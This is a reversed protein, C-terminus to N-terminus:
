AGMINLGCVRIINTTVGQSQPAALFAVTEAVDIPLGGQSLAAIRRGAFRTFIPIASTMQTEIFGPAVANITINKEQLPSSMSDVLGIVSAKSMAYNTQGLNGAIGSISSVCIIRSSQNILERKLIEENIRVIAELNVSMVQQWHSKPMSSLMKDKTIGANHVLIDISGVLRELENSILEPSNTDTINAVMAQGGINAMEQELLTKASEIDLGIVKAGDRALLQAISLGIGRSAGTVLAVKGSLPKIWPELALSSENILNVVQGNVYASRYSLFFRLPSVISQSLSKENYLLNATIGKRGVEKALSKVFGVLGRQISAQEPHECLSPSLGILVIKGSPAIYRMHEHFFAYLHEAQKITKIARADFVVGDVTMAISPPDLILQSGLASSIVPDANQQEIDTVCIRAVLESPQGGARKLLPPIPLGLLRCLKNGITSQSFSIYRDTM